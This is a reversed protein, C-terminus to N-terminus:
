EGIFSKVIERSYTAVNRGRSVQAAKWLAQGDRKDKRTSYDPFATPSGVLVRAGFIAKEPPGYPYGEALKVEVGGNSDNALWKEADTLCIIHDSLGPTNVGPVDVTVLVPIGMAVLDQIRTLAEDILVHSGSTPMLTTDFASALVLAPYAEELKSWILLGERDYGGIANLKDNLQGPDIQHGYNNM